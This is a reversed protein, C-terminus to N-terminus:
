IINSHLYLDLLQNINWALVIRQELLLNLLSGILLRFGLPLQSSLGMLQTQGWRRGVTENGHSSM